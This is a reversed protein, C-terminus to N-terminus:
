RSLVTEAIDGVAGESDPMLKELDKCVSESYDKYREGIEEILTDLIEQKSKFYSYFSAKRFGVAKEIQGISTAEYGNTSFLKLAADLIRRKSLSVDM